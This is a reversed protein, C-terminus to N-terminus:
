RKMIKPNFGLAKLDNYAPSASKADPYAGCLLRYITNDEKLVYTSIDNQKLERVVKETKELSDYMGVEIAFPVASGVFAGQEIVKEAVLERLRAVAEKIAPFAGYDVRYWIGPAGLDIKTIFVKELKPAIKEVQQKAASPDQWSSTHITYPYYVTKTYSVSPKATQKPVVEQVPMKIPEAAQSSRNIQKTVVNSLGYDAWLPLAILTLMCILVLRKM